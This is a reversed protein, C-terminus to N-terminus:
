PASGQSVVPPTVRRVHVPWRAPVIGEYVHKAIAKGTEIVVQVAEAKFAM